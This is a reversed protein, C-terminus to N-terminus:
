NRCYWGRLKRLSDFVLKIDRKPLNTYDHILVLIAKDNLGNQKLKEMAEGIRVIAEALIETSEPQETNKVVKIQTTM